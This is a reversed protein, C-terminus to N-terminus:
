PPLHMPIATVRDGRKDVRVILVPVREIGSLPRFATTHFDFLFKQIKKDTPTIGALFIFFVKPIGCAIWMNVCKGRYIKRIIGGPYGRADHEHEETRRLTGVLHTAQLEWPLRM